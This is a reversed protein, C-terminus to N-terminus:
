PRAAKLREYVDMILLPNGATAFKKPRESGPKISLCLTLRDGEIKYIGPYTKGKLPGSSDSTPTLDISKPMQNPVLKVMEPYGNVGFKFENGDIVLVPRPEDLVHKNGSAETTVRTWSGQMQDLDAKEQVVTKPDDAAIMLCCALPVLWFRM